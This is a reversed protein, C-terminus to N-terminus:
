LIQCQSERLDPPMGRHMCGRYGQFRKHYQRLFQRSYKREIQIIKYVSSNRSGPNGWGQVEPRSQFSFRPCRWLQHREITQTNIDCKFVMANDRLFGLWAHRQCSRLALLVLYNGLCTYLRSNNRMSAICCSRTFCNVLFSSLSSNESLLLM